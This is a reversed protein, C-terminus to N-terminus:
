HKGPKHPHKNYTCEGLENSIAGHVLNGIM